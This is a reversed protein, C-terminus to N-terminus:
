RPGCAPRAVLRDGLGVAVRQEAADGAGVAELGAMGVLGAVAEGARGLLVAPADDHDDGAEGAEVLPDLFQDPEHLPAEVGPLRPRQQALALMDALRPHLQAAGRADAEDRRAVDGDGIRGAHALIQAGPDDILARDLRRDRPALMDGVEDDGGGVHRGLRHRQDGLRVDALRAEEAADPGPQLADEPRAHAPRKMVSSPPSPTPLDVWAFASAAASRPARGRRRRSGRARRCGPRRPSGCGAAGRDDSAAPPRPAATRRRGSRDHRGCSGAPAPARRGPHHAVAEEVARDGILAAGAAEAEVRDPRQVRDAAAAEQGVAGQQQLEGFGFRVPAGAAAVLAAGVQDAAAAGVIMPADGLGKPAEGVLLRVAVAHDVGRAAGFSTSRGGARRARPDATVGSWPWSAATAAKRAPM